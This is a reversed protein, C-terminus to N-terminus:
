DREILDGLGGQAPMLRPLAGNQGRNHLGPPRGRTLDAALKRDRAPPLHDARHGPATHFPGHHQLRLLRKAVALGPQQFVPDRILLGKGHPQGTAPRDADPDIRDARRRPHLRRKQGIQHRCPRGPARHRKDYGRLGSLSPQAIARVIRRNRRPHLGVAAPLLFVPPKDPHMVRGQPQNHHPGHMHRLRQQQHRPGTAIIRHQNIRAPREGRLRAKRALHDDLIPGIRRHRPLARIRAARNHRQRMVGLQIIRRKQGSEGALREIDAAKPRLAGMGLPQLPQARPADALRIQLPDM